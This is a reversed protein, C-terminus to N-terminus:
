VKVRKWHGLNVIVLLIVLAVAYTAAEVWWIFDPQEVKLWYVGLLVLPLQIAYNTALTVWLTPKTDGSGQFASRAVRSLGFPLMVFCNIRLIRVVWEVTALNEAGTGPVFLKAIAPASFYFTTGLVLLLLGVVGLAYHVSLESRRPHRAGLNQGVMTISAFNIGMVTWRLMRMITHNIGQAAFVTTGYTNIAAGVFLNGIHQLSDAFAPPVGIRLIRWATELNLSAFHGPKMRIFTGGNLFLYMAQIFVFIFAFVTGWAAGRIGLGLGQFSLLPEQIGLTPFPGIYVTPFILLPDLIFNLGGTIASIILLRKMDGIARLGTKLTFTSFLLPTACFMISGYSLGMELVEDRSGFATYAWRQILLGIAAVVLAVILKFSFTQGIVRRCEEYQKAGYTRAILAVSGNGIMQNLLAFLFWIYYFTTVAAIASPSVRGLWIMDVLVTSNSLLNTFAGPLALRLLHRPISGETIDNPDLEAPKQADSSPSPHPPQNV